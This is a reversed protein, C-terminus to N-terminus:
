RNNCFRMLIAVSNYQGGPNDFAWVFGSTGNDVNTWGTPLGAVPFLIEDWSTGIRIGDVTIDQSSNYQRLYVGSIESQGAQTDTVEPTGAAVEDAPIGTPVVWLSVADPTGITYKVILLYTTSPDFDTPTTAYVATSSNSIGFNIKGATSSPKVWVRAVYNFTGHPAIHMFYGSPGSGVNVLASMYVDGTTQATFSQNVDEGTNDLQAANGFGSGPYDTYTLGTTTSIANTGGGSHATWGNDTLLGSYDFNDNWLIPASFNEEFFVTADPSLVREKSVNRNRLGIWINM